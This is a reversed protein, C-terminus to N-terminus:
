ACLSAGATALSVLVLAVCFWDPWVFGILCYHQGADHGLVMQNHDLFLLGVSSHLLAGPQECIHVWRIQDVMWPAINRCMLVTQFGLIWFSTALVRCLASQSCGERLLGSQICREECNSSCSSGCDRMNM